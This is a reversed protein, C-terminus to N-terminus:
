KIEVDQVFARQPADYAMWSKCNACTESKFTGARLEARLRRMPEGDWIQLLGQHNIDGVPMTEHLDICCPYVKGSSSVVLRQSPYQCYTRPPLGDDDHDCGPAAEAHGEAENRDFCHHSSVKVKDGFLMRVEGAFDEDRNDKTLVRRIWLNPHGRRLLAHVAAIVLSLDGGRRMKAYTDKRCSDLSVMVKSASMLGDLSKLPSNLNTNVLLDLFVPEIAEDGTFTFRPVDIWKARGIEGTTKHRVMQAAYNVIESYDPHITSEGRWNFKLAPVGINACEDIIRFAMEKPMLRRRAKGDGSDARIMSEFKSDSIFCFPCTLNCVSALEIDVNLPVPADATKSADWAARYDARTRYM